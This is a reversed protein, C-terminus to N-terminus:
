HLLQAPLFPLRGAGHCSSSFSINENGSTGVLLYSANRRLAIQLRVDFQLRSDMGDIEIIRSRRGKIKSLYETKWHSM